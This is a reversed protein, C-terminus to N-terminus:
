RFTKILFRLEKELESIQTQLNAVTELLQHDDAPKRIRKINKKLVKEGSAFEYLLSLNSYHYFLSRCLEKIKSILSDSMLLPFATNANTAGQVLLTNTMVM